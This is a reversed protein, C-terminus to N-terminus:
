QRVTTAITLWCSRVEAAPVLLRQREARDLRALELKEQMLAIRVQRLDQPGVAAERQFKIYNRVADAAYVGKSLRNIVGSRALQDLRAISLGTLFRMQPTSFTAPLGDPIADMAM